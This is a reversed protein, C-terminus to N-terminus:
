GMMKMLKKKTNKCEGYKWESDFGNWFIRISKDDFRYIIVTLEEFKFVINNNNKDDSLYDADKEFIKEIKDLFAIAKAKPLYYFDSSSKLKRGESNIQEGNFGLLLGEMSKTMCKFYLTTM